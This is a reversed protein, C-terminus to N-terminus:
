KFADKNARKNEYMLMDIKKQFEEVKMHSNFDYVAYGISFGLSYSKAPSENYKELCSYIRAVMQELDYKNSLDLIIYFEDGGYRAIFDNSRLCSKLLTVTVELARDGMDHGFIDNISKFNNLDILIASFTNNKSSTNIKNRMYTELKKRNYVGTLYDTDMRRNQITIFVILLSITLGNLMFSMGYFIIQFIMCVFPPVPFFVLSFYYKKEIRKRNLVILFFATLILSFTLAVPVWFFPGRHYINEQDIYYFWRFFLSLVTMIANLVIVFFLPKMLRKTHSEDHYIECHTYLLWISPTIPSLMFVFFNGLYNFGSYFTGPNGDFRSFIDFVLMIITIQLMKMFLDHQLFFKENQKLSHIYIIILIVISNLNIVLNSTFIM